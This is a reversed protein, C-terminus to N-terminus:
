QVDHADKRQSRRPKTKPQMADREAALRLLSVLEKLLLEPDLDDDWGGVERGNMRRRANRIVMLGCSSTDNQQPCPAEEYGFGLGKFEAEVMERVRTRRPRGRITSRTVMSNYHYIMGLQENIELLTYHNM